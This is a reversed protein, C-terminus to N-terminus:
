SALLETIAVVIAPHEPVTKSRFRRVVRGDRGVLFKEFNWKVDLISRGAESTRM